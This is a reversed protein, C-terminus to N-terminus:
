SNNLKYFDRAEKSWADISDDLRDDVNPIRGNAEKSMLFQYLSQVSTIISDLRPIDMTEDDDLHALFRDRYKRVDRIFAAFQDTTLSLDCLVRHEFASRDHIVRTWHHKGRPEAFLKCWELVAVDLFNSNATVVLSGRFVAKKQQWGQRYYITNRACHVCLILVRRLRKIEVM